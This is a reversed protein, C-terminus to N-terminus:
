ELEFSVREFGAHEFAARLRSLAFADEEASEAGVFRVPRGITASRVSHGFQREAQVRLDALIRSILDELTYRRGFVETGTLSRSALYSKLSQILRGPHDGERHAALYSDIAAAGSSALLGRVAKEIYLISRSSLSANTFRLLEMRSGSVRAVSSNTTGFDIGVHAAPNPPPSAM